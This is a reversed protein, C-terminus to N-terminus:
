PLVRKLTGMKVDWLMVRDGGTALHEGNPSFAVSEVWDDHGRLTRTIRNAFPDWLLIAKQRGAALTLGDPSFAISAFHGELQREVDGTAMDYLRIWGENRYGGKGALRKGDPSYAVAFILNRPARELYRTLQGTRTDWLRVGEDGELGGASALTLGDPSFAVSHIWNLHGKFERSLQGTRLHWLRIVSDRGASAAIVGDPSIAVSSVWGIHAVLARQLIRTRLNWIRVTGDDAGSVLTSGDRSISISRVHGTHGRLVAKIRGSKTDWLRITNRRTSALVTGDPAFAVSYVPPEWPKPPASAAHLVEHTISTLCFGVLLGLVGTIRAVATLPGRVSTAVEDLSWRQGRVCRHTVASDEGISGIHVANLSAGGGPGGRGSVETEMDLEERRDSADNWSLASDM